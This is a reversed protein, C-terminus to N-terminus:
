FAVKEKNEFGQKEYFSITLLCKKKGWLVISVIRVLQIPRSYALQEFTTQGNEGVYM